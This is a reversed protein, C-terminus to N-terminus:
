KKTECLRARVFDGPKTNMTVILSEGAALLDVFHCELLKDVKTAWEKFIIKAAEYDSKEPTKKYPNNEHLYGGCRGHAEVLEEKTLFGDTLFDMTICDNGNTRREVFPRPYFKPNLREITKIIKALQWDKEFSSRIEEYKERNSCLSAMALSEFLLRFQLYVFDINTQHYTTCRKGDLIDNIATMRRKIVGMVNTYLKLDSKEM